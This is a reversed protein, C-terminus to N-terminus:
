DFAQPGINHSGCDLCCMAIHKGHKGQRIELNDPHNNTKDGDIHHVTETDRLPRGFKRATVLRHEAVRGKSRAMCFLPDDPELTIDVYGQTTIYRGRKNKPKARIKVGMKILHERITTNHAKYKQGIAVLSMGNEYEAIMDKKEEDTLQTPRGQWPRMKGGQREIAMIITSTGAQYKKGLEPGSVGSEYEKLIQKETEDSFKKAEKRYHHLGKATVGAHNLARYVTKSNVGLLDATKYASLTENYTAVIQEDTPMAEKSRYSM